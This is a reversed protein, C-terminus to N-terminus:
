WNMLLFDESDILPWPCVPMLNLDIKRLLRKNTEEDIVINDAGSNIAKMAEDADIEHNFLKGKEIVASDRGPDAEHVETM